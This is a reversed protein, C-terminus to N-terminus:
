SVGVRGTRGSDTLSYIARDQHGSPTVLKHDLLESIAMALELSNFAPFTTAMQRTTFSKLEAVRSHGLLKAALASIMVPRPKSKKAAEKVATPKQPAKTTPM